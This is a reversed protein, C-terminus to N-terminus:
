KVLKAMTVAATLSSTDMDLAVPKNSKREVIEKHKEQKDRPILDWLPPWAKLAPALTSFNKIIDEVGKVFEVRKAKADHIRYCYEIFEQQIGEFRPDNAAIRLGSYSLKAGSQAFDVSYPFPLHSISSLQVTTNRAYFESAMPHDATARFDINHRDGSADLFGDLTLRDQNGFYNAPLSQMITQTKDDFMGDYIRQGWDTPASQEAREIAPEHLKRASAKINSVLEDSFRVTAM